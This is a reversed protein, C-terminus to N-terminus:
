DLVCAVSGNPAALSQCLANIGPQVTVHGSDPDIEHLEGPASCGFIRQRGRHFQVTLTVFNYDLAIPAGLAAGTRPTLETLTEDGANSAFLTNRAPGSWTLGAGGWRRPLAAIQRGRGSRTDIEILANNTSSIGFLSRGIATLASVSGSMFYGVSTATCRCPDIEILTDATTMDTISALLRGEVFTMAEITNAQRIGAPMQINACITSMAGYDAPAVSIRLLQHVDRRSGTTQATLLWNPITGTAADATTDSSRADSASADVPTVLDAVVDRPASADPLAADPASPRPTSCALAFSCQLALLAIRRM